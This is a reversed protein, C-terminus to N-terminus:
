FKGNDLNNKAEKTVCSQQMSSAQQSTSSSGFTELSRQYARLNIVNLLIRINPGKTCWFREQPVYTGTIQKTPEKLKMCSIAMWIHIAIKKTISLWERLSKSAFNKGGQDCLKTANFFGTSKDIVLRFDGFISWLVLHKKPFFFIFTSCSSFSFQKYLTRTHCAKQTSV